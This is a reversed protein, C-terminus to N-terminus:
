RPDVEGRLRALMRKANDNDPNLELSKEYGAIALEARGLNVYGEGLSDWVNASDPFLVTNARFVSVSEDFRGERLLRYGLGNIPGELHRCSEAYVAAAEELVVLAEDFREAALLEMPLLKGESGREVLLSRMGSTVTVAGAPGNGELTFRAVIAGNGSAFSGDQRPHLQASVTTLGEPAFDTILLSLADGARGVNLTQCPGFRYRGVCRAAVREDLDVPEPPRHEYALIAEMAPDRGSAYDEYGYGSRVDPHLADIRQSFPGARTLTRSVLFEMGSEPLRFVEPNSYFVPGQGTPEGVLIAETNDRLLEAFMVAASFTKRGIMAFLRGPRNIREEAALARVLPPALTGDGGDNVRLDIVFREFEHSRVFDLLRRTFEQITEGGSVPLVKHFRFLLTGTAEDLAFSYHDRRDNGLAPPSDNEVTGVSSWYFAPVFHVPRLRVETREGARDEFLFECGSADPAIGAAALWEAVLAANCFRDKWGYENEAALYDKMTEYVEAVPRGGIGVVRLGELDPHERPADIVYWGDDFGYIKLPYSHWGLRLSFVNPFSHADRPLAILRTFGARVRNDDLTPIEDRLAAVEAHFTEPSVLEFLGPAQRPLEAELFALDALWQETTPRLPMGWWLILRSDIALAAALAVLGVALLLPLGALTRIWRRRAAALGCAASALAVAAGATAGHLFATFVPGFPQEFLLVAATGCATFLVLGSSVLLRRIPQKRM